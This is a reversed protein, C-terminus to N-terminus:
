SRAEKQVDKVIDKYDVSAGKENGSMQETYLIFSADKKLVVEKSKTVELDIKPGQLNRFNSYSNLSRLTDIITKHSEHSGHSLNLRAITKKEVAKDNKKAPGITCIKDITGSKVM